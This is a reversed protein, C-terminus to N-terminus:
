KSPAKAGAKSEANQGPNDAPASAAKDATAPAAGVAAEAKQGDQLQHQGTVVLQDGEKLGDLVEQYSKNIRGLKVKRKRYQGDQLVYVFTDAEERIVSLTPIAVVQQETETTLQVMVRTGPRIQHEPNAVELELSYTKTQASMVTALYNIKATKKVDPTDPNYYVLETKGQVLRYNSESLETKIKIPDIQLVQGLKAGTAITQGAEPTFDTLIGGAPAKVSYNDLTRVSDSLALEASGVQTENTAITNNNDNAALKNKASEVNMQATDVQQQAQDLQHDNAQGADYDNRLKNYDQQANKLAVEAKTVADALDKRNNAQDDKAKQLAERSSRLSLENKQRASEADRSDLRFLVDGKEVYDGRKKFVEVIEGGAKSVIDLATGASIDAVQETPDGIRQRAVPETKVARAKLEAQAMGGPGGSPSCGAALAVVAALLVLTKVPRWRRKTRKHNWTSM